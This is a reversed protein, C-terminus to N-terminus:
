LWAETGLSELSQAPWGAAQGGLWCSGYDKIRTEMIDWDVFFCGHPLAHDPNQPGGIWDGWTWFIFGPRSGRIFGFHPMDHSWGERTPVGFGQKDRSQSFSDMGGSHAFYCNALGDALDEATECLAIYNLPHKKAATKIEAPPGSGGWSVSLDTRDETLDISGIKERPVMGYDHLWESALSPEMGQDAREGRYGYIPEHATRKYYDEAEGKIIIEAARASDSHIWSGIAVCNNTQQVYDFATGDLKALAVCPLCVDITKAAGVLHPAAQKFTQIRPYAESVVLRETRRKNRDNLICGTLM